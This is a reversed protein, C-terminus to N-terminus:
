AQKKKRKFKPPHVTWTILAPLGLPLILNSLLLGIITMLGTVQVAATTGSILPAILVLEILTIAWTTKGCHYFHATLQSADFQHLWDRHQVTPSSVLLWHLGILASSWLIALWPLPGLQAWNTYGLRTLGLSALTVALLGTTLIVSLVLSRLNLWFVVALIALVIAAWIWASQNLTQRVPAVQVTTGAYTASAHALPTALLSTQVTQRVAQLTKFNSTALAPQKFTVVLKTIKENASTNTTVSNKYTASNQANAPLYFMKGVESAKLGTLYKNTQHVTTAIQAIDENTKTLSQDVSQLKQQAGSVMTLLQTQQSLITTMQQNIDTTLATAAALDNALQSSQSPSAVADVSLNALQTTIAQNDVDLQTLQTQLKQLADLQHDLETKALSDQDDKLGKKIAKLTQQNGTLTAQVNTLQSGVYYQAIKQGTPQTVSTVTAVGALHQLKTTLNDITQLSKQTTLKQNHQLYITVPTTAGLGFHATILQAGNDAATPKTQTSPTLQSDDVQTRRSLMLGPLLLILVLLLGLAPQWHSLRSFQGWLNHKRQPWPKHGPWRLGDDLLTTLSLGLTPVVALAILCILAM